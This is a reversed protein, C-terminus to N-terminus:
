SWSAEVARVIWKQGLKLGTSAPVQKCSGPGGGSTSQHRVPRAPMPSFGNFGLRYLTLEEHHHHHHHVQGDKRASHIVTDSQTCRSPTARWKGDDTTQLLHYEERTAANAMQKRWPKRHMAARPGKRITGVVPGAASSWGFWNPRVFSFIEKVFACYLSSKIFHM